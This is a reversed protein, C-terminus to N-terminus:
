QQRWTGFYIWVYNMTLLYRKRLNNNRRCEMWEWEWDWYFFYWTFAKFVNNVIKKWKWIQSSRSHLFIEWNVSASIFKRDHRQMRSFGKHRAKEFRRIETWMRMAISIWMMRMVTMPRRQRRSHWHWHSWKTQRMTKISNAERMLTHPTFITDM